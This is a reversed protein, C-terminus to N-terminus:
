NDMTGIKQMAIMTVDMKGSIKKGAVTYADVQMTKVNCKHCWHQIAEYDQKALSHEYQENPMVKQYDLFIDTVLKGKINVSLVELILPASWTNFVNLVMGSEGTKDVLGYDWDDPMLTPQISYYLHPKKDYYDKVCTLCFGIIVGLITYIPSPVKNLLDIFCAVSEM